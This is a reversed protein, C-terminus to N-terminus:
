SSELLKKLRFWAEDVQGELAMSADLITGIQDVIGFYRVKQRLRALNTHGYRKALQVLFPNGCAVFLYMFDYDPDGWNVDGFDLVGTVRGDQVLIHEASFDAHLVTPRFTFNDPASLYSEFHHRLTQAEATSLQPAIKFTADSFYHEAVVRAGEQPLISSLEADPLLNHLAILFEALAEAADARQPVTLSPVTMAKGRVYRYVAYGFPAGESTRAAHEYRPVQLPLRDAAFELFKIERDLETWQERRKPFRFVLEGNILYSCFCWGEGIFQASRVFIGPYEAAIANWNPTM